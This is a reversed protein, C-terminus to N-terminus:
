RVMQVGYVSFLVSDPRAKDEYRGCYMGNWKLKQMVKTNSAGAGKWKKKFNFSNGM